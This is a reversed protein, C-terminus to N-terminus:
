LLLLQHYLYVYTGIRTNCVTSNVGAELYERYVTWKEVEVM